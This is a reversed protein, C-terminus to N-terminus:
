FEDQSKSDKYFRIHMSMTLHTCFLLNMGLNLSKEASENELANRTLCGENALNCDCSASHTLMGSRLRETTTLALKKAITADITCRLAGRKLSELVTVYCCYPLQWRKSEFHYLIMQYIGDYHKAPKIEPRLPWVYENKLMCREPFGDYSNVFEFVALRKEKDSIINGKWDLFQCNDFNNDWRLEFHRFCM